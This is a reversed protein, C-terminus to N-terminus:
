NFRPSFPSDTDPRQYIYANESGLCSFDEEAPVCAGNNTWFERYLFFDALDRWTRRDVPDALLKRLGFTNQNEEQSHYGRYVAEPFWWRHKIKQPKSFEEAFSPDATSKNNSHVLAVPSNPPNTVGTTSYNTYQIDDRGRLYWYWPWHFGSTGDIAAIPISEQADQERLVRALNHIDPSTQTYVIMEVPIDGHQFAAMTGARGSLVLLVAAVSVLAITGFVSPRIVRALFYGIVALAIATAALIVGFTRAPLDLVTEYGDLGLFALNWLLALFLPVGVLTLLGGIKSVKKWEISVIIDNLFKGSLVIMPLTINVLLWPMKESAVTYLLLTTWVWYVLFMGFKDRKRLYYVSGIIALLLPLFEYLSMIVTYYYWPQSGRGEGQQVVWYGLSQWVGSGIGFGNTLLSTYMLIYLAYFIAAAKWWVSTNWKLGYSLALFILFATVLFAVVLGGGVPSGIPGSGGVPSALTLGSWGLLPTDQLISVFAGWLPLTITILFVLFGAEKSIGRMDLGHELRSIWGGVIKVAAVPPSDVGVNVKSKVANWNRSIIVLVLYLGMTATILYASEKSAFAFALLAATIYLYHAKGMKPPPGASEEGNPEQSSEEHKSEDAEERLDKRIINALASSWRRIHSNRWGERIAASVVSWWRRVLSPRGEPDVGPDEDLYRWMAIVIGLAWVAMLIDNRAFRSYYLMAPSFALMISALLAGWDGLRSRFLLPMLVLATGAIAYLLRATYDSDGFLFFLGATAEMQFPGHMMPNHIYGEGAYLNWSYFAHLSEDHHFARVGLDWFRMAAAAVTLVVYTAVYLVRKVSYRNPTPQDLTM